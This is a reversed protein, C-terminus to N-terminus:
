IFPEAMVTQERGLLHDGYSEYSIYPNFIVHRSAVNFDLWYRQAPNSESFGSSGALNMLESSAETLMQVCLASEARINFADDTSLTSGALAVEDVVQNTRDMAARATRIKTAVEGLTARFAGSDQREGYNTFIIPKAAGTMVTELQGEVCGVLVGLSKARLLPFPIWYDGAEKEYSFPEASIIGAMKCALHEPVFVNDAVLTDSGSGRMGVVDWTDLRQVEGIPILCQVPQAGDLIGMLLAYSAHHCNSGYSWRGSLRYGGDAPELMGMGNQPSTLMPTGDAFIVEQMADKMQSSIWAVSNTISSCWATSPCGKALEASVRALGVSSIAQGGWRRPVSLNHLQHATIEGVVEASLEGNQHHTQAHKELLPRLNRAAELADNEGQTNFSLVSNSATSEVASVTM